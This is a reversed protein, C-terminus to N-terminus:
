DSGPVSYLRREVIREENCVLERSKQTASWNSREGNRKDAIM